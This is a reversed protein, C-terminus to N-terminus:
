NTPGGFAKVKKCAVSEEGKLNKPWGLVITEVEQSLVLQKIEDLITKSHLLMPLPQAFLGLGDSVAVGIRKEGYDLGLVRM